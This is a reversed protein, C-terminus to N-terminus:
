DAVTYQLVADAEGAAEVSVELTVRGQEAFKVANGVLNILVQRLRESDGIVSTPVDDHIQCVLDINKQRARVALIRVTSAVMSPLDFATPHLHLKRAEIKSFDLIDNIITLLSDAASKVIELYERQNATLKTGLTMETMGVIANMPTRIEHSINALF